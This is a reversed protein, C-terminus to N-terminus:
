FLSQFHHVELRVTASGWWKSLWGMSAITPSGTILSWCHRGSSTGRGSSKKLPSAASTHPSTIKTLRIQIMYHLWRLISPHSVVDQAGGTLQIPNYCKFPFRHVVASQQRTWVAFSSFPYGWFYKLFTSQGLVIMPAWSIPPQREHVLVTRYLKQTGDNSTQFLNYTFICTSLHVCAHMYVISFSIDM